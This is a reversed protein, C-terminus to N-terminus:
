TVIGSKLARLPAYDASYIATGARRLNICYFVGGCVDFRQAIVFNSQRLPMM